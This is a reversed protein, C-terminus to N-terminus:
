LIGEDRLHKEDWVTDFDLRSGSRRLIENQLAMYEPMGLRTLRVLPRGLRKQVVSDIPCHLIRRKTSDHPRTLYFHYKLIVNIPKQAQGVSIGFENSLRQISHMISPETLTGADMESILRDIEQFARIKFAGVTLRGRAKLTKGVSRSVMTTNFLILYISKQHISLPV